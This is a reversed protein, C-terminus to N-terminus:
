PRLQGLNFAPDNTGKNFVQAGSFLQGANVKVEVTFAGSFSNPLGKNVRAPIQVAKGAGVSVVLRSLVTGDLKRFTLEASAPTGAPNHLWLTSKYAGDEQLGILVQTHGATAVDRDDVSPVVQGFRSAGARNYTDGLVVPYVGGVGASDVVVIGAAAKKVKFESKLIDVVRLTQGAQLTKARAAPAKGGLASVFSLTVAMPQDTPNVLVADSSWQTQKAGAGNFMGLLYQRSRGGERRATVVGQDDSSAWKTVAFPFVNGGDAVEVEVRYDDDNNVGLAQQAARDLQEQSNGALTTSPRSGLQIGDKDFFRLSYDASTVDANTAGFTTGRETTDQLGILHYVVPGSGPTSPLTFGPLVQGFRKSGDFSQHFGVAMPQPDGEAALVSIYGSTNDVHFQGLLALVQLTAGAALTHQMTPPNPTPAGKIHFAITLHTEQPGPNYLYLDSLDVDATNNQVVWPVVAMKGLPAGPAVTFSKQAIQTESGRTVTLTVVYFGAASWAHTADPGSIAPSGDSFTWSASTPDGTSTSHFTVPQRATARCDEVGLAAPCVPITTFKAVLPPPPPPDPTGSAVTVQKTVAATCIGFSCGTGTGTKSVELAVPFTGAAAFTFTTTQGSRTEGGPLTWTFGTPSGLSPGGDLTVPQGATPAAPTVTFNATLGTPSSGGGIQVGKTGTAGSCGSNTVTVTKSGDSSWTISVASGTGSVVGGGTASWNWTAAPTCNSGSGTFSLAQNAQGSTPGNITISPGPPPPPPPPPPTSDDVVILSHTRTVYPEADRRIRLQPAFTGAATYAHTISNSQPTVPAWSTGDGSWNVEYLTPGGSVQVNFTITQNVAFACFGFACGQALFQDITVPQIQSITVALPVSILEGGCNKIQAKITKAGTSSYSCSVSGNNFQSNGDNYGHFGTGDGCDWAYDTAGSATANLNVVGFPPSGATCNTCVPAGGAGDFSLPIAVAYSFNESGVADPGAGNNATAEVTYTIGTQLTSAPLVHPNGTAQGVVPYVQLAGNKVVWSVAPAPQGTVNNATLTVAQCTQPSAPAHTVSGINPSPDLVAVTKTEEDFGVANDVRLTVQKNGTSTFTASTPSTSTSSVTTGAPFTWLRSTVVGTSTDTFTTPTNAYVPDAWSFNANPPTPTAQTWVHTDFVTYGVRYLVPGKFKAVRPSVRSYGVGPGNGPYYWGWYDITQNAVTFTADPTIEIPSAPNSIDFLFERQRGGNCQGNQGFYLFPTSASRSFTVFLRTAGVPAQGYTSWSGTWIPAPLSACGSALCGTVNYIRGGGDVHLALYQQGSQEWLALGYIVENTLLRQTTPNEPNTVDWLRFGFEYTLSSSVLFHRGGSTSLADLFIAATSFGGVRGKAVGTCTGSSQLCKNLSRASTMDYRYLGSESAFFAYDRGGITLARVQSGDPAVAGTGSDQYLLRPSTKNSTDVIALGVPGMGAVALVDDKNPPADLDWIFHRVESCEPVTAWFATNPTCGSTRLDVSSLRQPKEANVGSADWIQFGSVTSTFIWGNEIDVGSYLPMSPGPLGHGDYFTSDREAALRVPNTLSGDVDGPRLSGWLRNDAAFAPSGVSCNQGAAPVVALLLMALVALCTTTRTRNMDM